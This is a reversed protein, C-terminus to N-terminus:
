PGRCRRITLGCGRTRRRALAHVPRLMREVQVRRHAYQAAAAGITADPYGGLWSFLEAAYATNGDHVAVSAAIRVGAARDGPEPAGLLADCLAAASSCEGCLALADALEPRLESAGADVAARYWRTRDTRAGAAHDRLWRALRDDHIGHEALELALQDSLTAAELQTRLLATEVNHHRGAGIIQALVRHVTALFAPSHSPEVLGTGRARDVLEAARTPTLDLTAAVDAAGLDTSLSLILLTEVDAPDLRRLREHLAYGVAQATGTATVPHGAAVASVLLPIGATAAATAELVETPPPHGSADTLSFAIDRVTLRGLTIRPRERELASSLRRLAPDHDRPEGAVVVTREPDDALDALLHLESDKLRHADDIVVAAHKDNDRPIRSLVTHGSERLSHRVAELATSKGSGIGGIVLLRVPESGLAALVPRASPLQGTATSASM